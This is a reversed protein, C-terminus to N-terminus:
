LLFNNIFAFKSNFSNNINITHNLAHLPQHLSSPVNSSDTKPLSNSAAAAITPNIPFLSNLYPSSLSALTSNITNTNLFSPYPPMFGANMMATLQENLQNSASSNALQQNTSNLFQQMHQPLSNTQVLNSQLLNNTFQNFHNISSKTDGESYDSLSSQCRKKDEEEEEEDYEEFDTNTNISNTLSNNKTGYEQNNNNLEKKIQTSSNLLSDVSFSFRKTTPEPQDNSKSEENSQKILYQKVVDQSIKNISNLNVNLNVSNQEIPAM